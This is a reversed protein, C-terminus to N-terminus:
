KPLKYEFSFPMFISVGFQAQVNNTLEDEGYWNAPDAADDPNVPAVLSELQDKFIYDRVELIATFWRNFFIRAGLGANFALKYEFEFFRNDPDIVAIPRTSIAGAGAVLYLDWHFIFDSFGAFKGYAPVYFFNFNANWDYETLPVGVRAARRVDTNFHSDVNFPRYYNFNAGIALVESVYFNAAIGPGPHQVFQDNLSVSWYPNLEFRGKRKAYIQQVAYIVENLDKAAEKELDLQPCAAPDIECIDGLGGEEGIEGELGPIEEEDVAPEEAPLEGGEGEGEVGEEVGEEEAAEDDGEDQAFTIGPYACLVAAVLLGIRIRNM